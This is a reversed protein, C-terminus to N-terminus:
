NICILMKLSNFTENKIGTVNTIEEIASFGNNNKRYEIILEAKADGIGPLTVLLEKSATNINIKAPGKSDKLDESTRFTVDSVEMETPFYISEGDKVERALNIYHRNADKSYGDAKELALYVREGAKLEYVGPNKVAGHIYVICIKEATEFEQDIGQAITEEEFEIVTPEEKSQYVFISGSILAFALMALSFLLKYKM